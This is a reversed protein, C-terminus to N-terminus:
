QYRQTYAHAYTHAHAQTFTHTNVYFLLIVTNVCNYGLLTYVYKYNYVHIIYTHMHTYLM